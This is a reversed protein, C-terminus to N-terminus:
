VGRFKLTTAMSEILYKARQLEDEELHLGKRLQYLIEEDTM